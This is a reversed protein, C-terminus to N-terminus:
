RHAEISPNPNQPPPDYGDRPTGVKSLIAAIVNLPACRRESDWNPQWCIEEPAHQLDELEGVFLFLMRPEPAVQGSAVFPLLVLALSAFVLLLRRTM